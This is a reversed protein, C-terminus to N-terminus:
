FTSGEIVLNGPMELCVFKKQLSSCVAKKIVFDSNLGNNRTLIQSITEALKIIHICLSKKEDGTAVKNILDMIKKILYPNRLAHITPQSM